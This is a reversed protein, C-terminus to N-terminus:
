SFCFSQFSGPALLGMITKSRVVYTSDICPETTSRLRERCCMGSSQKRFVDWACAGQKDREEREGGVKRWTERAIIWRMLFKKLTEPSSDWLHPDIHRLVISFTNNRYEDDTCVTNYLQKIQCPGLLAPWYNKTGNFTPQKLQLAASLSLYKLNKKREKEWLFATSCSHVSPIESSPFHWLDNGRQYTNPVVPWFWPKPNQKDNGTKNQQNWGKDKKEEDTERSAQTGETLLERHIETQTKGKAIRQNTQTEQRNRIGDEEPTEGAQTRTNDQNWSPKTKQEQIEHKTALQKAHSKNSGNQIWLIQSKIM